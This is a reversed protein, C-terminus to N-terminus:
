SFGFVLITVGIAMGCQCVLLFDNLQRDFLFTVWDLDRFKEFLEIRPQFAISYLSGMDTPMIIDDAIRSEMCLLHVWIWAIRGVIM